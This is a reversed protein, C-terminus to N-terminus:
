NVKSFGWIEYMIRTPLKEYPFHIWSKTKIRKAVFDARVKAHKRELLVATGIEFGINHIHGKVGALTAGTDNIEDVVLIPSQLYGVGSIQPDIHLTTNDFNDYFKASIVFLPLKLQHSLYVGVPLGGRSIALISKFIVESKEVLEKLTNCLEEYEAWTMAFIKKRGM